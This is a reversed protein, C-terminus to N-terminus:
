NDKKADPKSESKGELKALRERDAFIGALEEAFEPHRALIAQRDLAEGRESAEVCAVLIEQLRMERELSTSRESSM